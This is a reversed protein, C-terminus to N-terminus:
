CDWEPLFRALTKAVMRFSNPIDSITPLYILNFLIFKGFLVMFISPTVASLVNDSLVITVCM